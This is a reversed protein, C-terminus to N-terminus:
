LMAEKHLMQFYPYTNASHAKCESAEMSPQCSTELSASPAMVFEAATWRVSSSTKSTSEMPVDSMSPPFSSSITPVISSTPVEVNPEIFYPLSFTTRNVIHQQVPCTHKKSVEVTSVNSICHLWLGLHWIFFKRLNINHSCQKQLVYICFSFRKLGLCLDSTYRCKSVRSHMFGM